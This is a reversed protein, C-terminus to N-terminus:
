LPVQLQLTSPSHATTGGGPGPVMDVGGPEKEWFGFVAAMLGSDIFGSETLVMENQQALFPGEIDKPRNMMHLARQGVHCWWSNLIEWPTRVHAMGWVLYHCDPGPRSGMGDLCGHGHLHM